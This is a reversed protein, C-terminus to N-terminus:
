HQPRRAAILVEGLLVSLVSGVTIPLVGTLTERDWSLPVATFIISLIILAMPVYVLWKLFGSRGPVRFPRERDPFKRRLTLFAPFVPLYSLLLMVLNLAFFSWFLSSDPSLREMVAGLLCVASAVIGSTVASGVPMDNRKWRRAFVAPMDGRDAAYAATSNVGMSWSIMNGFLTVLFLLAVVRVLTGGAGGTMLSVADILGSDPSIDRVPVAAGIGFASFLYIAAIVIGGTNRDIRNCLAPTFAHEERPRWERKAYLYAQIHDILTRGYEADDHPHVAQGPKKDVLLINEDEYVINLKPATVTLYANAESPKDFFEDNIYLQLVDGEQLRTDRQARANNCKIRKLRIYKQALSAPLLPVAKALFRDLRQGADNRGITLEKM